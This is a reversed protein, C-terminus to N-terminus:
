QVHFGRAVGQETESYNQAATSCNRSIESLVQLLQAQDQAWQQMLSQFQQQALGQWFGTTAEVRSKVTNLINSVEAEASSLQQATSNLEEPTIRFGGAM